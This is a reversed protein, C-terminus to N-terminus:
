LGRPLPMEATRANFLSTTDRLAVDSPSMTYLVLTTAGLCCPSMAEVPSGAQNSCGIVLSCSMSSISRPSRVLTRIIKAEPTGASVVM